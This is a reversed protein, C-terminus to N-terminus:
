NTIFKVCNLNIAYKYSFRVLIHLIPFITNTLITSLTNCSNKEPAGPKLEPVETKLSIDILILRDTRGMIFQFTFCKVM